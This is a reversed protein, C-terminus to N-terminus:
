WDCDLEPWKNAFVNEKLEEEQRAAAIRRRRKQLSLIKRNGKNVKDLFDQKGKTTLSNFVDYIRDSAM